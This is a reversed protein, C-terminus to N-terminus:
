RKPLLDTLIRFDLGEAEALYTTAIAHRDRIVQRGRPGDLVVSDAAQSMKSIDLSGAAAALAALLHMGEYCSEAMTGVVPADPGFRRAYRGTFDLSGETPLVSFYAASVFLDHSAEIGAAYVMNEDMLPTLRTIRRSLGRAAFGRHFEVGDQGVLLVVVGEVGTSSLWELSGSFDQRGLPEYWEGVLEQEVRALHRRIYAATARPWIYDNGVVAWRKIRRDEALLRMAPAIQLDPTEGTLFVGPNREGGEYLSTYVYPYQNRLVPTVRERVASTHTGVVADILGRAVLSEIRAAVTAPAVGGDVSLLHVQRGLIGGRENIEELALQACLQAPPGIIGLPGQMPNVVAIMVSDADM